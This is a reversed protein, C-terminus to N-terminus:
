RDTRLRGRLLRQRRGHLDRAQRTINTGMGCGAGQFPEIVWSGSGLGKLFAITVITLAYWTVAFGIALGSHAVVQFAVSRPMVWAKLLTHVAVALGALPMVNGFAAIAARELGIQTTAIFVGTYLSWILFSGCLWLVIWSPANWATKM